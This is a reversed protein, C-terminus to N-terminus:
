CSAGISLTCVKTNQIKRIELKNDKTHKFLIEDKFAWKDRKGM